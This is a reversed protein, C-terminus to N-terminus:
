MPLNIPRRVTQQYTPVHQQFTKVVAKVKPRLDQSEWCDLLNWRCSEGAQLLQSVVAGAKLVIAWFVQAHLVHCASTSVLAQSITSCAPITPRRFPLSIVLNARGAGSETLGALGECPELKPLWGESSRGGMAGELGVM